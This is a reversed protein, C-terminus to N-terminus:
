KVKVGNIFCVVFGNYGKAKLDDMHKVAEEKTKFGGALVKYLGSEEIVTVKGIDTYKNMNPKTNMSAVQVKYEKVELVSIPTTNSSTTSPSTSTLTNSPVTTNSPTSVPITINEKKPESNKTTTVTNQPTPTVTKTETVPKSSPTGPLFDVFMPGDGIEKKSEGEIYYYKHEFSAQGTANGVAWIMTVKFEDVKPSEVWVYKARRNEFTFYGDLNIGEKVTVNPPVDLQYKSFSSISGKKIVIEVTYTAYATLKDPINADIMNQACFVSSILLFLALLRIKM